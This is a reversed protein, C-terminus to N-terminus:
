GKILVSAFGVHRFVVESEPSHGNAPRRFYITHCRGEQSREYRVFELPGHGGLELREKSLRILIEEVPLLEITVGNEIGQMGKGGKLQLAYLAITDSLDKKKTM